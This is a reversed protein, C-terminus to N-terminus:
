EYLNSFSLLLLLFVYAYFRTMVGYFWECIALFVHRSWHYCCFLTCCCWVIMSYSICERVLREDNSTTPSHVGNLPWSPRVDYTKFTIPTRQGSWANVKWFARCYTVSAFFRLFTVLNWSNHSNLKLWKIRPLLVELQSYGYFSPRYVIKLQFGTLVLNILYFLLIRFYIFLFLVCFM